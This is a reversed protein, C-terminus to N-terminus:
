TKNWRFDRRTIALDLKKKFTANNSANEIVVGYFKNKIGFRTLIKMLEVMLHFGTHQIDFFAFGIFHERHQFTDNVWYVLMGLFAIKQFNSWADLAISVRQVSKSNKRIKECVQAYKSLIRNRLKNRHVLNLDPRAMLLLTRFNEHDITRFFWNLVFFCKNLQEDWKKQDFSTFFIGIKKIM